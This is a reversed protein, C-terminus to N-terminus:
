DDYKKLKEERLEELTMEPDSIIGLLSDAISITEDNEKTEIPFTNGGPKRNGNTRM